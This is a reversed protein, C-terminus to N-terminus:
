AAMQEAAEAMALRRRAREYAAELAGPPLNEANSPKKADSKTAIVPKKTTEQYHNDLLVLGLQAGAAAMVGQGVARYTESEAIAVATGGIATVLGTVFTPPLLNERAVLACTVAAAAAGGATYLAARGPSLKGHASPNKGDTSARMSTSRTARADNRLGNRLRSRLKHRAQKKIHKATKAM